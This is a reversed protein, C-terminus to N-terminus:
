ANKNREVIKLFDELWLTVMRPERDFKTVAIPMRGDTGNHAQLLAARLNPRAGVKCEIYFPTGDVDPAEGTGGRTQYGRKAEPYLARFLKAVERENNHGKTRQSKGM